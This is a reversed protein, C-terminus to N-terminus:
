RWPQLPQAETHRNYPEVVYLFQDGDDQDFRSMGHEGVFLASGV